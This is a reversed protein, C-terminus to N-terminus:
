KTFFNIDLPSLIRISEFQKVNLLKKDSTIFIDTGIRQASQLIMLDEFDDFENDYFKSKAMVFDNHVLYVPPIEFSLIEMANVVDKKDIKRKETLVYYFTTLFDGSFYFEMEELDKYKMYFDISTVSNPRSRDLMDLCINADLFIKM